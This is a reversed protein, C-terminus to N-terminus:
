VCWICADAGTFEAKVNDPYEDYDRVVISRLKSSGDGDVQVLKRALVVVSSIKPTLLSQRIVETALYGTGGTIILKM